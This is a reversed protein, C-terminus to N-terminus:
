VTLTSLLPGACAVAVVRDTVKVPRCGASTLVIAADVPHEADPVTTVQESPLRLECVCILFLTLTFGLAGPDITTPKLAVLVAGLALGLPEVAEKVVTTCHDISNAGAPCAHM